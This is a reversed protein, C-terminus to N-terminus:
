GRKPLKVTAFGELILDKDLTEIWWILDVFYEKNKEYKDFVYARSIATDGGLGHWNARKGKMYPVKDLYPYKDFLVPFSKQPISPIYTKGNPDKYNVYKTAPPADMMDRGIRQLWGQDGMWDYLMGGVWRHVMVNWFVPRGDSDQIKVNTDTEFDNVGRQVRDTGSGQQGSAGSAKTAPPRDANPDDGPPPSGVPVTDTKSQMSEPLVYIGQANKTMKSFINPDLINKKTDLVDQTLQDAMSGKVVIPGTVTPTPENGITVDDWYLPTSGRSTEKKWYGKLTEYDADTYQHAKRLWWDPSEWAHAGSKNRKAPDKHRRYSENTMSAGEAVLEGKQNFVRGWGKMVFTRYHSGTAPTIDEFYQGDTVVTLTDGEYFPKYYNMTHCLDNVVMYDGIGKSKPMAPMIELSCHLPVATLAGFRGKRAYEKNTFFPDDGLGCQKAMKIMSEYTVKGAGPAGGGGGPGDKHKGSVLDMIKINGRNNVKDLEAKFDSLVKADAADYMGPYYFEWDDWNWTDGAQQVQRDAPHGWKCGWLGASGLGM